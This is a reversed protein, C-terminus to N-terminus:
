RGVGGLTALKRDHEAIEDARGRHRRPKIGLVHVLDDPGVLFGTRARHRAIVAEDGLEHAIPHKSIEAKRTGMLLVSLPCDSGTQVDGSDDRLEFGRSRLTQPNADADRSADDHDSIEDPLPRRLFLGDDALRGIQRRPQLGQGLWAAYHYGLRGSPQQAPRELQRRKPWLGEFAEVRRNASPRDQALRLVDAAELRRPRLAHCGEDPALALQRKEQVAPADRDLALALALALDRQQRALCADALRANERRQALPDAVLRMHPHAILARRMVDVVGEIRDRAVDPMRRAKDAALRRRRPEVLQLRHDRSRPQLWRFDRREECGEQRDAALPSVRLQFHGWIILLLACDRRQDRQELPQGFVGRYQRQQLVRMPDVRRREVYEAPQDIPQGTQAGQQHDREARLEGRGPDAARV